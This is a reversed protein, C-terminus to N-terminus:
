RASRAAAARRTPEDRYLQEVTAIAARLRAAKAPTVFLDIDKERAFHIYEAGVGEGGGCGTDLLCLDGSDVSLCSNGQGARRDFASDIAYILGRECWDGTPVQWLAALLQQLHEGRDQGFPCEFFVVRGQVPRDRHTMSDPLSVFARYLGILGLMDARSM